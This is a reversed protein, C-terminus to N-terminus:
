FEPNEHRSLWQLNILVGASVMFQSYKSLLYKAEVSLDIQDTLMIYSGAGLNLGFGNDKEKFVEDPAGTISSVDRKFSLLIDIGALGYFEIRDLSNFVYHGNLDLM